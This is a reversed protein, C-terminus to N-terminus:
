RQTPPQISHVIQAINARDEDTVDPGITATIHFKRDGFLDITWFQAEVGHYLNTDPNLAATCHHAALGAISDNPPGKCEGPENQPTPTDLAMIVVMRDFDTPLLIPNGGPRPRMLLTLAQSNNNNYAGWGVPTCFGYRDINDIQAATQPPCGKPLPIVPTPVILGQSPLEPTPTAAQTPSPAGAKAPNDQRGRLSAILILLLVLGALVMGVRSSKM